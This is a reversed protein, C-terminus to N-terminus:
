RSGLTAEVTFSEGDRVVELEITEGPSRAGVEAALEDFDRVAEGDIAVVLDGEELGGEEAASGPEVSDIYAGPEEVPDVGEARGVGLFPLDLPEGEVIKNAQAFALDIPIAFGIGNNDGSQSFIATPVGIIRGSRDALAGGSNGSNIAADTQIMGTTIETGAFPRDVASVIGATVTQDLEFPSGVAVALQGVQVEEELALVAVEIIAEPDIRVVAIDIATDAGLVEGPTESGDAMTVTVDTAEGVVHANTLILGSPDYVTGSGIGVETEIRVVAPTVAEAVAAVPETPEGQVPPDTPLGAAEDDEAPATGSLTPAVDDTIVWGVVVGAALLSLAVLVAIM